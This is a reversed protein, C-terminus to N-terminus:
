ESVEEFPMVYVTRKVLQLGSLALGQSISLMERADTEDECFLINAEDNGDYEDGDRIVAWEEYQEYIAVDNVKITM